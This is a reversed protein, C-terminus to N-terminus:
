DGETPEQSSYKKIVVEEPRLVKDGWFFGTRVIQAVTNNESSDATPLTKMTRHLKPDLATPHEEFRSVDRRSLVELLEIQLIELRSVVDAVSLEGSARAWDITRELNDHFLVLELFIPRQLRVVSEEGQQKLQDSLKGLAGFSLKLLSMQDEVSTGIKQLLLSDDSTPSPLVVPDLSNSAEVESAAPRVVVPAPKASGACDPVAPNVPSTPIDQEM